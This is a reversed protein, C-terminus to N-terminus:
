ASEKIQSISKKEKVEYNMGTLPGHVKKIYTIGKLRPDPRSMWLLKERPIDNIAQQKKVFESVYKM